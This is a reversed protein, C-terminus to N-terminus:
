QALIFDALEDLQAASFSFEVQEMGAEVRVFSVDVADAAGSSLVAYAYCCAQLRYRDHLDEGEGSVGTKYDVIHAACAQADLCLLDIFGELPVGRVDTVFAYEAHQQSYAALQGYLESRMWAGVIGELRQTQEADLAFRRAAAAIRVPLADPLAGQTEVLWQAVLHFASGVPAVTEADESRDRLQIAAAHVPAGSEPVQRHAISSYSHLQAEQVVRASVQPQPQSPCIYHRAASPKEGGDVQASGRQVVQMELSVLAGTRTRAVSPWSAGDPFAAEVMSSFQGQALEGTSAYTGDHGMVILLDRARTLAVYLLRQAEEAERQRSVGLAHALFAAPTSAQAFTVDDDAHAFLHEGGPSSKTVSLALYAAGDETLSQLSVSSRRQSDYEALAVIPFELGKSAHFTMIQVASGGPSVMTAPKGAAMAGDESLDCITRFYEAARLTTRGYRKEYDDLLDCIRQVNAQRAAGGTSSARLADQWGSDREVKLVTSSLPCSGVEALAQSLVAHARVLLGEDSQPVRQAQLCLADYLSAKKRLSNFPLKVEDRRIVALALLDDDNVDFMESGLLDFLAEDDDPNELFRLLKVVLGVEDSKYFSSGGSVVCPIGWVKLADQYLQANSMSRLLIAMDGYSAGREHLREFEQAIYNAEAYRLDEALPAKGTEEDKVGAMLALRVRPEDAAAWAQDRDNAPGPKVKLFEGGFYEPTSFVAEVFQLIGSHSRFNMDLAVNLAGHEVMEQRMGRYVELDAGRFGYISQQADGVTALTTLGDDTLHKAIAVQLADTDQFEDIMISEFQGQYEAAIDPHTELLRYAEILVDSLDISGLARKLARHRARVQGALELLASCQAYSLAAAVQAQQQGLCECLDDLISRAPEKKITGHKFPAAQAFVERAADLTVPAGKCAELAEALLAERERVKEFCGASTKNASAFDISELEARAQSCAQAAAALAQSFDAPPKPGLNFDSVGHPMVSLADVAKRLFDCVRDAGGLTALLLELGEEGAREKLTADIAQGLLEGSKVEDLMQAGPDIGAEFAHESLMRQCMSHITSIWAADVQLAADMLGRSRLEARVRGLLEGAAKNTFTITLLNAVDSITGQVLGHALRKTLTFTKGTGAGAQIFLPRGSCEVAQRQSETLPM